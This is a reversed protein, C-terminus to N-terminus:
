SFSTRFCRESEQSSSSTANIRRFVDGMLHNSYAFSYLLNRGAPLCAYSDLLIIPSHDKTKDFYQHSRPFTETQCSGFTQLAGSRLVTGARAPLSINTAISILVFRAAASRFTQLVALGNRFGAGALSVLM